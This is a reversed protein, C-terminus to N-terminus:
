SLIRIVQVAIDIIEYSEYGYYELIKAFFSLYHM